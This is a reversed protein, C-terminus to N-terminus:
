RELRIPRNLPSPGTNLGAAGELSSFDGSIEVIVSKLGLHAEPSFMSSSLCWINNKSVSVSTVSAFSALLRCSECFSVFEALWVLSVSSSCWDLEFEMVLSTVAKFM